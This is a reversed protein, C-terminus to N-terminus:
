QVGGVVACGFFRITAYTTLPFRQSQL